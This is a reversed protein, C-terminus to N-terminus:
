IRDTNMLTNYFMCLELASFCMEFSSYDILGPLCHCIVVHICAQAFQFNAYGLFLNRWIKKRLGNQQRLGNKQRFGNKGINVQFCVTLDIYYCVNVIM